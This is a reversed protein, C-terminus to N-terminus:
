SDISSTPFLRSDLNEIEVVKDAIYERFVLTISVPLGAIFLAAATM